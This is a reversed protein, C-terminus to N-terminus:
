FPGFFFAVRRAFGCPGLPLNQASIKPHNKTIKGDTSRPVKTAEFPHFPRKRQSIQSRCKVLNFGLTGTLSQSTLSQFRFQFQVFTKLAVSAAFWIQDDMCCISDWAFSFRDQLKKQTWNGLDVPETKQSVCHNFRMSFCIEFQRHVLHVPEMMCWIAMNGATLYVKPVCRSVWWLWWLSVFQSHYAVLYEPYVQKGNFCVISSEGVLSHYSFPPSTGPLMLNWMDCWSSHSAMLTQSRPAQARQTLQTRLSAIETCRKFKYRFTHHFFFGM